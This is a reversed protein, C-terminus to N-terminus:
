NQNKLIMGKPGSVLEFQEHNKFSKQEIEIAGDDGEKVTYLRVETPSNLKSPPDDQSPGIVECTNETESLHAVVSM